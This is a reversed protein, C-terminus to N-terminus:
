SSTSGAAVAHDWACHTFDWIKEAWGRSHYGRLTDNDPVVDSQSDIRWSGPQYTDSTLHFAHREGSERINMGFYRIVWGSVIQMVSLFAWWLLGDKKSPLHEATRPTNTNVFGPTAHLFVIHKQADHEALYDFALSTLLTTHNVLARIGWKKDLNIDDEDIKTEKTGNLISLVHPQRSQHLLPLLNSVLRLRSYYSVAFCQELGEPTYKAGAFPMGGPSMCLFDVRKEASRIQSCASDIDSILSVLAEIFVFNNSPSSARLQELCAVHRPPNRGLIYFTSSQLMTALRELTAAGIGATGGAFVCVLGKHHEAAYRANSETITTTNVM